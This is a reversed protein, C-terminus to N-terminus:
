QKMLYFEVLIDGIDTTLNTSLNVGGKGIQVVHGKGTVIIPSTKSLNIGKITFIDKAGAFIDNALSLMIDEICGEDRSMDVIKDGTERSCSMILNGLLKPSVIPFTATVDFKEPTSEPSIKIESSAINDISFKELLVEKIVQVFPNIFAGHGGEEKEVKKAKEPDLIKTAEEIVDDSEVPKNFLHLGDVEAAQKELIEDHVAFLFITTAANFFSGKIKNIFEFGGLQHLQYDVCILDFFETNALKLASPASDLITVVYNSEEFFTKLKDLLEQNDDVLLVKKEM